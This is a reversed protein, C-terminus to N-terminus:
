CFFAVVGGCVLIGDSEREGGVWYMVGLDWNGNGMEKKRRRELVSVVGGGIRRM